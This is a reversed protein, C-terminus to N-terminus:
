YPPSVILLIIPISKPVVLEQTDTISPDPALTISFASPVLVVGEITENPSSVSTPVGALLCATVFGSFVTKATFLSIPLFNLSAETCFSRLVEGNLIISDLFPSAQTVAFSM